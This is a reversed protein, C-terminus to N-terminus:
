FMIFRCDMRHSDLLLFVQGASITPIIRLLKLSDQYFGKRLSMKQSIIMERENEAHGSLRYRKGKVLERVRLIREDVGDQMTKNYTGLFCLTLCFFMFMSSTLFSSQLRM